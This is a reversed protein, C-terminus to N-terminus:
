VPTFAFPYFVLVRNKGSPQGLDYSKAEGGVTGELTVTPFKDGVKLM